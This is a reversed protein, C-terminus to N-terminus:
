DRRGRKGRKGHYEVGLKQWVEENDNMYFVADRHKHEIVDAIGEAYLIEYVPYNLMGESTRGEFAIPELGKQKAVIKKVPFFSDKEKLKLVAVRGDKEVYYDLTVTYSAREAGEPLDFWKPLRSDPSLEFNSESCGTICLIAVLIYKSM